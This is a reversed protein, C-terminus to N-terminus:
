VSHSIFFKNAHSMENMHRLHQAWVRELDSHFSAPPVHREDTQEAYRVAVSLSLKVAHFKIQFSTLRM